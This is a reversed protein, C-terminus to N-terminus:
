INLIEELKKDIEESNDKKTEEPKEEVKPAPIIEEQVPTEKKIPTAEQSTEKIEPKRIERVERRAPRQRSDERPRDVFEKLEPLGDTKSIMFRIIGNELRLKSNIEVLSEKNELNFRRAIFIGHTDRKIKYALKRPSVWEVDEFIGSNDTIIKEVNEKIQPMEAEKSAGILYFLEYKM